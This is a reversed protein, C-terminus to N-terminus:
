YDKGRFASDARDNPSCAPRASGRVEEMSTLPLALLGGRSTSSQRASCQRPPSSPAPAVYMAKHNCLLSITKYKSAQIATTEVHCDAKHVLQSANSGLMAAQHM